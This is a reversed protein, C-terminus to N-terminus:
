IQNNKNIKNVNGISIWASIIGFGTKDINFPKIKKPNRLFILMCYKKNKCWEYFKPLDKIDIGDAIGNENLIDWVKKPTLSSYQVIRAAETRITVPNGSDKFYITEGPKIRNWPPYKSKYWRSEITKQGTLIKNTLGWSKRMIAIHEM